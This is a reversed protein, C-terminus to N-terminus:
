ITSQYRSFTCVLIQGAGVADGVTVACKWCKGAIGARIITGSGSEKVSEQNDVINSTPLPQMAEAVGDSESLVKWREATVKEIDERNEELWEEYAEIDFVGEEIRVSEDGNGSERADDLEKEEIPYFCIRDFVNFM